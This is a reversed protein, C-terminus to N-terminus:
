DLYMSILDPLQPVWLAVSCQSKQVPTPTGFPFGQLRRNTSVPAEGHDIFLRLLVYRGDQRHVRHCLAKPWLYLGTM